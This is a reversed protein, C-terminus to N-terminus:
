CSYISDNHYNFQKFYPLNNKKRPKSSFLFIHTFLCGSPGPTLDVKWQLQDFMSFVFKEIFYEEILKVTTPSDASAVLRVTTIM